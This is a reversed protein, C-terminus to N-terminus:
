RVFLKLQLKARLKSLNQRKNHENRHRECRGNGPMPPEDCGYDTCKQQEKREHYTM